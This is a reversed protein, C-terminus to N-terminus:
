GFHFRGINQDQFTGYFPITKKKKLRYFYYILCLFPDVHLWLTYQLSALHRVFPLFFIFFVAAFFVWWDESLGGIM